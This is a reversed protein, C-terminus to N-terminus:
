TLCNWLSRQTAFAAYFPGSPETPNGLMLIHVHGGAMIGEIADWIQAQIGPAEDIVILIRGHYGQLHTVTDTSVGLAYNSEGLRLERRNCPPFPFRSKAALMQIQDWLVTDVQRLTPALTLVIGERYRALWWLVAIAASFTKGSAHCAKVATR